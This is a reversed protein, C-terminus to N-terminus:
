VRGRPSKQEASLSMASLLGTTIVRNRAWGKLDLCRGEEPASGQTCGLLGSRQLQISLVQRRHVMRL